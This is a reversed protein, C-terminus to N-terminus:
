TISSWNSRPAAFNLLVDAVEADAKAVVTKAETAPRGSVNRAKRATADAAHQRGAGRWGGGSGSSCGGGLIYLAEYCIGKRERQGSTAPGGLEPGAVM